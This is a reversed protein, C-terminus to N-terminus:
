IRSRTNSASMPLSSKEPNVLRPQFHDGPVAVATTLLRAHKCPQPVWYLPALVQTGGPTVECPLYFPRRRPGISHLKSPEAEAARAVSPRRPRRTTLVNRAAPLPRKSADGPAALVPGHAPVSCWEVFSRGDERSQRIM